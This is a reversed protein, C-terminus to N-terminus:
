KRWKISNWENIAEKIESYLKKLYDDAMDLIPEYMFSNIHINEPTMLNVKSLIPLLSDQNNESKLIKYLNRTQNSKIDEIKSKDHINSKMYKEAILRIAISLTIKNELNIEQSEKKIIEDAENIIMKFIKTNGHVKIKVGWIDLYYQKIDQVSIKDTDTKHHLLSTLKIYSFSNKGNYYESLNRLFPISAIFIRKNCNEKDHIKDKWQAFVNKLYQGKVVQIESEKKSIMFVNQRPLGLRSSLTRYFDFNHTLVIVKFFNEIVIDELYEIIAYKNQYDFSDAIDDMIILVPNEDIKRSEIEYIINLLYLARKEGRSLYEILDNRELKKEEDNEKYIFNIAPVEVDKLIMDEMNTIELDFPVLFRNNFLDVINKWSSEQSKAKEVISEIQNKGNNYIDILINYDESLEYLM